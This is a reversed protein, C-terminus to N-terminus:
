VLRIIASCIFFLKEYAVELLENTKQLIDIAGTKSLVTTTEADSLERLVDTPHDKWEEIEERVRKEERALTVSDVLSILSKANRRVREIDDIGEFFDAHLLQMASSLDLASPLLKTANIFLRMTADSVKLQKTMEVAIQHKMRVHGRALQLTQAKELVRQNATRCKDLESLASEADALLGDVNSGLVDLEATVGNLHNLYERHLEVIKRHAIGSRLSAPGLGHSRELQSGGSLSKQHGGKLGFNSLLFSSSGNSSFIDSLLAFATSIDSSSVLDENEIIKRVREPIYNQVRQEQTDM